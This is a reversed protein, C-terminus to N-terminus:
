ATKNKDGMGMNMKEGWHIRMENRKVGVTARPEWVCSLVKGKEGRGLEGQRCFWELKIGERGGFEGCSVTKKGKIYVCKALSRGPRGKGRGRYVLM